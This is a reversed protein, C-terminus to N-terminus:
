FEENNYRSALKALKKIAMSSNIMKQNIKKETKSTDLGLYMGRKISLQQTSIKKYNIKKNIKNAFLIAFNKKSVANKTGINYIGTAKREILKKVVLACTNVDLTSTFMDDFLNIKKKNNLNNLLWGIFTSSLDNFKFGTFNTRIILNKKNKKVYKEAIIKSLAYKNIPSLKSNEKNLKFKKNKFFHDTSIHILKFNYKTSFLTLYKLFTSNIKKCKEFNKECFSLNTVGACNIVNQFQYNKFFFDLKKFKTLDINYDSKTRALTMYTSKNLIKKFENGLLGNSGIILYKIKKKVFLIKRSM